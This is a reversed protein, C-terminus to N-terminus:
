CCINRRNLLEYVRFSMEHFKYNYYTITNIVGTLETLFIIRLAYFSIFMVRLYMKYLSLIGTISTILNYIEIQCQSHYLFFTMWMDLKMYLPANGHIM